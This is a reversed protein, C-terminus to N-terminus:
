RTAETKPRPLERNLLLRLERTQGDDRASLLIKEQVNPLARSMTEVLWQQVFLGPNAQYLPLLRNFTEADSQVSAILRSREARATELRGAAEAEARSLTQSAESRAENLLRDRNQSAAIVNQFAQTVQRPARSVVSCQEVVIGLDQAAILQEVRRRVAEQFGLRDRTLLDDVTFRAATALLANDLASQIANSANVFGFVYRVPDQIRYSLTARVHVINGDATLAYSDVAPNLSPGAPPEQGLAEQEPTQAFWGVSSRVQQLETIPVRVVEDIPYPFAWHAGAGLLAQEGEGVPRGFRLLIAKEQPGVTFFGSFLFVAVLVVMVVKVIAFSSRLAEALAQSGADLGNARRPPAPPPLTEPSM